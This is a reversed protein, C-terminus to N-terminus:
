GVPGSRPLDVDVRLGGLSSHAARIFGGHAAVIRAAIALGLGAGGAHRARSAEARYLPEFLRTLAADPVGPPTDDISVRWFAGDSVLAVVIRGPADTYRQANSLLNDFLQRLRRADARLPWARAPAELILQLGAQACAAKRADIADELLEGLDLAEFRYHLGGLDALSLDYLDDVLQALREAEAALSAVAARDLPRVGDELAAIEGRLVALPTRLEHSIEAMWQRQLGHQRHLAEAMRNFDAGLAGIEGHSGVDCRATFDGAGLRAVSDSLARLPRLIGRSLLWSAILALLLLGGAVWAAVRLQERQFRLDRDDSLRPLPQVLLYGVAVDAVRIPVSPADAPVAPNGVVLAGNADVLQLRPRLDAGGRPGRPLGRALPGPPRAFPGPAFGPPPGDPMASEPPGEPAILRLFRPPHRRLANWDGTKAYEEGLRGAIVQAEQLDLANVYDLLGIRFARQQAFVFTGLALVLLVAICLFLRQWLRV